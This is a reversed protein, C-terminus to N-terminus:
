LNGGSGGHALWGDRRGKLWTTRLREAAARAPMDEPSLEYLCKYSLKGGSMLAVQGEEAQRRDQYALKRLASPTEGPLPDGLLEALQGNKRLELERLEARMFEAWAAERETRNREEQRTRRRESARKESCEAQWREAKVESQAGNRLEELYRGARTQIVASLAEEFYEGTSKARLGAQRELVERAMESVTQNGYM